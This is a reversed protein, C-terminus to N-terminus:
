DKPRAGKAESSLRDAREILEPLTAADAAAWSVLGLSAELTCPRQDKTKDAAIRQPTRAALLYDRVGKIADLCETAGPAHAAAGMRGGM